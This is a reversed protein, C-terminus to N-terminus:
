PVQTLLKRLDPLMGIRQAAPRPTHEAQPTGHQRLAARLQAPTLRGMGAAERAGQLCCVAGAVIPTASSTGRFCATYWADENDEGGQLDGISTTVVSWGWGQADVAAGFNSFALRSRAPGLDANACEPPAPLAPAGAGVLIAGSDRAGRRFPNSWGPPFGAPREDYLADSLNEAGNGAAEIVVVGRSVAYRIADFDDPFFEVPVYGLQDDRWRFKHRPGPLHMEIVLVDGASLLEASRRIAKSSSGVFGGVTLENVAFGRVFADPAIGTIGGGNRDGSIVGIVATGHRDDPIPTGGILGGQNERLDEHGFRWAGEVDIVNVGAGGGGPRTWAFRADIGDPAADLYAQLPTFDPTAMPPVGGKPGPLAGIFPLATPPKVYAGAVLEHERLERAAARLTTVPGYAAYYAALEPLPEAPALEATMAHLHHRVHAETPGFLPRLRLGVTDVLTNLSHVTTGPAVASEFGHLGSELLAAEHAVVVLHAPVIPQQATAAATAARARNPLAGRRGGAPNRQPM